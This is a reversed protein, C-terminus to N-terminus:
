LVSVRNGGAEKSLYMAADARHLGGELPEDSALVTVGFSARVQLSQDGWEIPAGIAMRLKEAVEAVGVPGHVGELLIVFEDGGHRVVLDESRVCSQAAGALMRLCADGTAHGRSDNIEKFNDLDISIVGTMTGSRQARAQRRTVWSDLARRNALGTLADHESLYEMQQAAAGLVKNALWLERARGDVIQEAQLRGSRERALRRELRGIRDHLEALQLVPDTEDGNDNM